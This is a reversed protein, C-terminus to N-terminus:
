FPSGLTFQFVETEDGPKDNIAWGWNFSLAGVPTLWMASIGYSSRLENLDVSENEGFVNGADLFLSLRFTNAGTDEEAFPWPFFLEAHGVVRKNGGIPDDTLTDRPGLTNGRYGRVTRSGGAYFNEFFPFAKTDGFGAGYAFDGTLNFILKETIPVYWKERLTLKYYELDGGPVAVQASAYTYAGWEPFIARNRSDYSWSLTTSVTDYNDGNETVWDTYYQPATSSVRLDTNEYGLSWSARSYETLPFGMNMSGGLVNTSYDGLNAQDANTSRHVLDFGRSIGDNTYYPNLYSFRYITNVKSNNLEASVRKGSGAFNNLTVSMNFLFGQADGYGMGATFNGTSGETVDFNLDVQDNTGPVRPTEVNVTEFFGLKQLRIKSRDVLPTSIWGGEMQRIERRVVEDQTKTNGSINIRRVYVRNGPDVFFTLAVTKEKENVDPIANVNAFAYGEHGLRESIKSVSESVNRRSFVDGSAIKLLGRLDEEPVILDGALKVESVMYQDGESINMTIYIDRKDPTISVQTSDLSYKLYGRDMYYSRLVEIDGQFEQTSFKGSDSLGSWFGPTSLTFEDLLRQEDIKDAGIINIQRIKAPSGEKIDIEVEVRNRELETLTTEIKVGYKGLGFYQRILEQEVQELMSRNFIRGEALGIGKLATDLEEKGIDENGYVTIKAISPREVVVVVLDNGDREMRVDEFFGTKYLARIANATKQRTLTEGVKLPLYNFATGLSIRQLGEVRIDQIVFEDAALVTQACFLFLFLGIKLSKM